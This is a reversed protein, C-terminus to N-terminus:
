DSDDLQEIRMVLLDVLAGWKRGGKGPILFLPLIEKGGKSLVRHETEVYGVTAKEVDGQEKAYAVFDQARAELNRMADPKDASLWWRLTGLKMWSAKLGRHVHKVASADMITLRCFEANPPKAIFYKIVPFFSKFTSKAVDMTVPSAGKKRGLIFMNTSDSEAVLDMYAKQMKALWEEPSSALSPCKSSAGL